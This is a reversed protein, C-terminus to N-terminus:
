QGSFDPDRKENFASVAEKHDDTQMTHAVSEMEEALQQELPQHSSRELLHTIQEFAKTPGNSLQAGLEDLREDFTESSVAETVLGIEAAETADIRQNLLAIRQAERLGVLRPLQWSTGGDGTLGVTPYGYQLYANTSMLVIDGALALGLGGGVAPGNVGVLVPAGARHFQTIANHFYSMSEKITSVPEESTFDSTDAGACFVGNSGTIVICRVSEDEGFKEALLFLEQAMRRHFSNMKKTSDITICVRGDDRDVHFNEYEVSQSAM